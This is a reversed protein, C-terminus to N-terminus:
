KFLKRAEARLANRLEARIEPETEKLASRLFSREPYKVTHAKVNTWVPSRLKRGFAEKVLRLHAKVTVTEGLEHARGYKVPTGVKGFIGKADQTVRQNISRRLRGTRVNLVQGSLKDAKVKALLQLTLRQVSVRLAAKGRETLQGLKAITEKQGIVYGRIMADGKRTNRAARQGARQSPM